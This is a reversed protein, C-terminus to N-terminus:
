QILYFIFSAAMCTVSFFTPACREYRTSIRRWDQLKGLLSEVKHRTQYLQTGFDQQM